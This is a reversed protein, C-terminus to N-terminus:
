EVPAAAKKPKSAAGGGGAEYEKKAKAARVKDAEAKEEYPQANTVCRSYLWSGSAKKEAPTLSTWKAGLLKGVEGFSVDPNDAKIQDRHDSVFFM